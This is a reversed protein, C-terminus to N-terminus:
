VSEDEWEEKSLKHLTYRGTVPHPNAYDVYVGCDSAYLLATGRAIGKTPATSENNRLAKRFKALRPDQVQLCSPLKGGNVTALRDCVMKDRLQEKNVGLFQGFAYFWEAVTDLSATANQPVWEGFHLLLDFPTQKSVTLVLNLSERFRGSNYLKDLAWEAKHLRVLEEATLCPTSVVEYPPTAVFECPYREEDERMPAGHILKLFGLQLMQAGLQYAQNVSDRFTVFDELPLGAILDVHVHVNGLDILKKVWYTLQNLDTKRRIYALTPEHFSQIGVEFQMSGAPASGIIAISEEDLLDGAIEFHFCVGDPILTGYNEIIFRWLEKARKRHANFTRDVLKVTKTGSNALLLLERKAREISVFKLKGCRASLCYACAYPCGRSTELYTIRGNLASFYEDCYPSPPEETLPEEPLTVVRGEVRYSVGPLNPSTKKQIANCLLAFSREGEGTLVYDVLSNENLVMTACYGVEPGGLVIKTNPLVEKIRPLLEKVRTINWIYCCFGLVDPNEAILRDAVATVHENVTGEVVTVQLNSDGYEKIGARLCWPALSSHIYQSNLACVVIKM